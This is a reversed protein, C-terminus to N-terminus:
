QTFRDLFGLHQSIWAFKHLLMLVGMAILLLGSLIEIVRLARRVRAFGAMFANVALASILFPVGIGASYVALLGIGDGATERTSALGLIGALIPGVCPTWGFAFAIGVIMSGLLGAPKTRVQARHERYLSTIRLVGLLHLGFIIIVIGAIQSLLRLHSGIVTAAAGLTIFVLTFGVIFALANPVVRRLLVARSATQLGQVSIGSVFSLYGPVLPLVCPSLFSALGAVFAAGWSVGGM